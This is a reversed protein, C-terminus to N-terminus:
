QQISLWNMYIHYLHSGYWTFCRVSFGERDVAVVDVKYRVNINKDHDVSTVGLQVHPTTNYPQAFRHYIVIDRDNYNPAPYKDWKDSDGCELYGSEIHPTPNHDACSCTTTAPAAPPPTYTALNNALYMLQQTMSAKERELQIVQGLQPAFLFCM